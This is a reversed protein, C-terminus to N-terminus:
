IFSPLFDAQDMSRHVMYLKTKAAKIIAFTIVLAVVWIDIVNNATHASPHFLSTQKSLESSHFTPLPCCWRTVAATSSIRVILIMILMITVSLIFLMLNVISTLFVEHTTGSHLLTLFWAYFFITRFLLRPGALIPSFAM